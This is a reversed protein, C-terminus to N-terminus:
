TNCRGNVVQPTPTITATALTNVVDFPLIEHSETIEHGPALEQAEGAQGPGGRGYRNGRRGRQRAGGDCRGDLLAPALQLLHERAAFHEDAGAAGVRRPVELVAIALRDPE